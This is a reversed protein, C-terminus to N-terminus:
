KMFIIDRTVLITSLPSYQFLKETRGVRFLSFILKSTFTLRLAFCSVFTYSASLSLSRIEDNKLVYITSCFDQKQSIVSM